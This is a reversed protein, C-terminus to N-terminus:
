ERPDAPAVFGWGKGGGARWVILTLVTWFILSGLNAETQGGSLVPPLVMTLWLLISVGFLLMGTFGVIM